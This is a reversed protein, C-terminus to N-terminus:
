SSAGIDSHIRWPTVEEPMNIPIVLENRLTQDDFYGSTKHVWLTMHFSMKLTPNTAQLTPAVLGTLM